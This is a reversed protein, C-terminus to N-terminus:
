GQQLIGKRRLDDEAYKLAEDYDRLAEDYAEMRYQTNAANYYPEGKEPASEQAQEYADLAEEYADLAAEPAVEVEEAKEFPEHGANNVQAPTDTCATLFVVLATTVYVIRRDLM